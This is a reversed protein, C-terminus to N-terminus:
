TWDDRNLNVVREKLLTNFPEKLKVSVIEDVGVFINLFINRCIIDKQVANGRKVILSANKSTNLFEDLSIRIVENKSIKEQLKKIENKQNEEEEQLKLIKDSNVTWVVSTKDIDILKEAIDRIKKTVNSLSSQRSHLEIKFKDLRNEHMKEIDAYFKNYEKETFNLGKELFDYIYDFIVKARISKKDRTCGKNSCRYYLYRNGGRRRSPGVYM